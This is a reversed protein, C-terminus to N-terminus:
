EQFKEEYEKLSLGDHSDKFEQEAFKRYKEMKKAFLEGNSPPTYTVANAGAEIVEVISEASPGGTAIIPVEPYQSRIRRVIDATNKGGSVNIIDSGAELREKIDTYASVVTSIIPCDVTQNVLSITSAPAPGNLVVASAGQAEVLSAIQACRQGKTTGGGVGAFVPNSSVSIISNLIAPHPTFPYVALVADANNNLIIAIDTTFIISKIRRGHIIIGSCKSIEQPVHIIDNRLETIINPRKKSM